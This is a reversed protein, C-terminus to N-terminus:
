GGKGCWHCPMRSSQSDTCIHLKKAYGEEGMRERDSDSPLWGDHVYVGPRGQRRLHRHLALVGLMHQGQYPFSSKFELRSLTPHTEARWLDDSFEVLCTHFCLEELCPFGSLSGLAAVNFTGM